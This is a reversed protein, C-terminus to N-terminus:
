DNPNAFIVCPRVNLFQCHEIEDDVAFQSGNGTRAGEDSARGLGSLQHRLGIEAVTLFRSM